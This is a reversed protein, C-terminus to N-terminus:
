EAAREIATKLQRMGILIAGTCVVVAGAPLSLIGVMIGSSIFAIGVILM